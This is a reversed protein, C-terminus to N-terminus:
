SELVQPVGLEAPSRWRETVEFEGQEDYAYLDYFGISPSGTTTWTLRDPSVRSTSTRVPRSPPSRM